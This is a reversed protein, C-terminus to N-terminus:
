WEAIAHLDPGLRHWSVHTPRFAGALREVGLAGLVPRGDGGILLPAALFHMRDVLGMRLLAAALGGGGEVLLDNVGLRGLARWAARLDLHGGRRAVEVVQAGARELARRRAASTRPGTLVVAGGPQRRDFLKASPRIRLGSDVAIRLPRHLVTRGRRATLAPDDALATESGVAIADVHARLGHVFARAPPSTIWRSEGRATAIRGDLSAALKLTTFPRGRTVRSVFGEHLRACADREIGVTVAIGAARLKRISRGATRPDPDSIGIVVRRPRAAIVADVCPPTRGTHACPELSVYLTSGRAAKGARRLARTEAHPAGGDATRARGVVRGNKVIVAGVCPNPATRGRGGLALEIAARM